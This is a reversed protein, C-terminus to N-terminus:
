EMNKVGFKFEYTSLDRMIELKDTKAKTVKEITLATDKKRKKMFAATKEMKNRQERNEREVLAVHEKLSDIM